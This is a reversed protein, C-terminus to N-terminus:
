SEPEFEISQIKQIEKETEYDTMQTPAESDDYLLVFGRM